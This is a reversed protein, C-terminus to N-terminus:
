RAEDFWIVGVDLLHSLLLRRVLFLLSQTPDHALASLLFFHSIELFFQNVKQLEYFRLLSLFGIFM